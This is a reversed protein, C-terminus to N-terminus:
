DTSEYEVYKVPMNKGDKTELMIRDGTDLHNPKKCTYLRKLTNSMTDKELNEKSHRRVGLNRSKCYRRLHKLYLWMEPCTAMNM